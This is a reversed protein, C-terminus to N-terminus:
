ADDEESEATQLWEIFPEARKKLARFYDCDPKSNRTYRKVLPKEEVLDEDFLMKLLMPYEKSSITDAWLGFYLEFARCIEETTSGSVIKSFITFKQKFDKSTLAEPFLICLACYIRATNSYAGQLQRQKLFSSLESESSLQKGLEVDEAFDEKTFIEARSSKKKEKKEKKAEEDDVSEAAEGGAAAAAAAQKKKEEKRKEKKEKKEAERKEIEEEDNESEDHGVTPAAVNSPAAPPNNCIFVALKHVSDFNGQWGCAMCKGTVDKKHVAIVTEPLKCKPCLVYKEIFKDLLQQMTDTQHAGNVIARDTYQSQAGLECGFWKNPYLTPVKLAKAVEAMNVVCTKIGNGRGEIRTQLKPMKYRYTPDSIYSPINLM